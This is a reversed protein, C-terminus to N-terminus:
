RIVSRYMVLLAEAEKAASHHTDVFSKASQGMQQNLKYNNLLREAYDLFEDREQYIFGTEGHRVISRNGQNNSVIVPKGYSMAELIAAPQGESHSTNLLVDAQRYIEGMAEHPVQGLSRIWDSNQRVFEDVVVGEAEELVPGALWLRVHPYRAHLEQLMDIAAPVNKVKRIGAPLVFLFTEKEKEAPPPAAPFESSGQGIVTVKEALEPAEKLLIDKAEENFVHIAAAGALSSVVESRKVPDFLDVNLDTGTMTIVYDSPPTEIQQIFRYFKHAHFGHVLDAPPLADPPPETTSFIETEVGLRGLGEAIRNVTVTNGRAQHINPAALLVKM